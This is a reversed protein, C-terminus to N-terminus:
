RRGLTVWGRCSGSELDRSRNELSGEHPRSLRPGGAGFGPTGVAVEL